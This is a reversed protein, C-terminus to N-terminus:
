GGPWILVEGHRPDLELAKDLLGLAGTSDGEVLKEHAQQYYSQPSLNRAAPQDATGPYLPLFLFIILSKVMKAM